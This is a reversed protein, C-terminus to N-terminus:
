VPDHRGPHRLFPQDPQDGHDQRCRHRRRARGEPRAQRVLHHRAARAQGPQLRLDRRHFARRGAAPDPARGALHDRERAGEEGSGRGEPEAVLAVKQGPKAFWTIDHLVPKDPNYGFTVDTFRVDGQLLTLRGDPSTIANERAKRAVEAAKPSLSQAAKLSRTGDDGEERKWAWHGTEHDMETMTRGDEGLEVNVLTVSGGDDEPKEDMLQFIRSAGALAMMVMNFQMSVQGLPNVFSRSLTLLSILAGLTLKGAGALGFNGMGSLAMFGGVIALLIYLIYGMNGVVPMTVNGWTNAEASAHFLEENKEDFTKQTADEHNFVKIVKQGNVSEEVFANVDGIWMQQKVFYRGSRSVIARVVVFLIAAFVLVFITVPVSLWLMSVLAALASIASSFMQPFSQSIAQRLTDTDNTYRSMIDGHENTDFYRVPLTQQHAFMDDRIKKLTGQEVTVILWQWLWSCFTGAAYLCGMLTLARLLPSWDPNKVGVLPLIYSDILSQLFLASGAQAAAGILICLVIAVVHWKYQFIYGFIRKTTGPAAKQPVKPGGHPVADPRKAKNGEQPHMGQATKKNTTASM